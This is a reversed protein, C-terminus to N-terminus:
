TEQKEARCKSCWGFINSLFITVTSFRVMGQSYVVPIMLIKLLPRTAELSFWVYQTEKKYPGLILHRCFLDWVLTCYPFLIDLITNFFISYLLSHWCETRGKEYDLFAGVSCSALYHM